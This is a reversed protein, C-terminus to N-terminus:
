WYNNVYVCYFITTTTYKSCSWLRRLYTSSRIGFVLVPLFTYGYFGSDLGAIRRRADRM